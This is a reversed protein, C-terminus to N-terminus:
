PASVRFIFILFFWGVPLAFLLADIRDLIGGHGPLLKGSDKVNASRKLVSEFLDGMQGAASMILCAGLMAVVSVQSFLVLKFGVGAIISGALGGLAGEFTKNPSVVPCLKRQGFHTGAYFAGIDGFFVIALMTLLWAAGQPLQWIITALGLPLGVYIVGMLSYAVQRGAQRDRSYETVTWSGTAIMGAAMAAILGEYHAFASGVVLAATALAVIAKPVIEIRHEERAGVIGFYEWLAMVAALAVVGTFFALNATFLLAVLLAAAILGTIWRTLHM